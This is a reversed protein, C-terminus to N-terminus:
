QRRLESENRERLGWLEGKRRDWFRIAGARVLLKRLEDDEFGGVKEKIAKFSRQQWNPHNLLRKVAEEAMFETRLETELREGQIHLANNLEDRLRARERLFTAVSTLFAVVLSVLATLVPAFDVSADEKEKRGRM